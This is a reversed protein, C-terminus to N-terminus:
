HTIGRLFFWGEKLRILGSRDLLLPIWMHPASSYEFVTCAYFLEGDDSDDEDDSESDSAGGVAGKAAEGDKGEEEEEGEEGDEEGSSSDSEHWEQGLLFLYM